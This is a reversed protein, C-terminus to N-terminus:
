AKTTKEVIRAGFKEADIVFREHMGESIKDVGDDATLSFTLKRDEVKELKGKITVTFGAPTAATHNINIGIGVTQEKPWDIHPKIAQICAYEFLGVLYGTAFVEPMQQIEPFEPYIYPVTKEKPVKYKFEFSLGPKLTDKM